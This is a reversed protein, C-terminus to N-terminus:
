GVVGRPIFVLLYILLYGLVLMAVAAGALMGAGLPVFRMVEALRKEDIEDAVEDAKAAASVRDSHV